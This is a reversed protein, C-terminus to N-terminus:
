AAGKQGAREVHLGHGGRQPLEPSLLRAGERFYQGINRSSERRSALTVLSSLRSRCPVGGRLAPRSLRRRGLVQPRASVRWRSTGAPLTVREEGVHPNPAARM